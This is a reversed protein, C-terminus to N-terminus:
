QPHGLHGYTRNIEDLTNRVAVRNLLTLIGVISILSLSIFVSAWWPSRSGLPKFETAATFFKLGLVGWFTLSERFGSFGTQQTVRKTGSNRSLFLSYHLSLDYGEVQTFILSDSETHLVEYRPSLALSIPRPHSPTLFCASPPTLCDSSGSM